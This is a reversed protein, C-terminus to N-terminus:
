TSSSASVVDTVCLTILSNNWLKVPDTIRTIGPTSSGAGVVRFVHYAAGKQEAFHLEKHSIPFGKDLSTSTKVEIFHYHVGDEQTAATSSDGMLSRIASSTSHTRIQLDYCM